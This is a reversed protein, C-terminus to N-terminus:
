AHNCRALRARILLHRAARLNGARRRRGADTLDRAAVLHPWASSDLAPSWNIGRERALRKTRRYYDRGIFRIPIRSADTCGPNETLRAALWDADARSMQGAVDYAHEYHHGDVHEVSFRWRGQSYEAWVRYDPANSHM